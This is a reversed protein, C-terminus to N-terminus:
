NVGVCTSMSTPNITRRHRLFPVATSVIIALWNDCLSRGVETSIPCTLITTIRILDKKFSLFVCYPFNSLSSLFIFLLFTLSTLWMAEPENSQEPPPPFPFFTFPFWLFLLDSHAFMQVKSYPISFRGMRCPRRVTYNGRISINKLRESRWRNGM